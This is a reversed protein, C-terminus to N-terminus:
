LDHMLDHGFTVHRNRVDDPSLAAMPFRSDAVRPAWRNFQMGIDHILAAAAFLMKEYGSWDYLEQLKLFYEIISLSHRTDHNTYHTLDVDQWIANVFVCIPHLFEQPKCDYLSVGDLKLVQVLKEASVADPQATSM